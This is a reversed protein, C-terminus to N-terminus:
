APQPLPEAPDAFGAPGAAGPAGTRGAPDAARVRALLAAPDPEAQLAPLLVEWMDRLREEIRARGDVAESVTHLGFFAYVVTLAATDPAIGPALEGSERADRLLGTVTETWAAFPGPVPADIARREMWLRSGARVVVDDRFARAVAFSLSVMKDLAPAPSARVEAIKAPWTDLTATVVALALKEKNSFHFYIAGSTRGSQASIDSISTGAYGREEFLRAAAEVLYRRTAEAREQM